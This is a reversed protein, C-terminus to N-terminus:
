LLSQKIALATFDTLYQSLVKRVLISCYKDNCQVSMILIFIFLIYLFQFGKVNTVSFKKSIRNPKIFLM